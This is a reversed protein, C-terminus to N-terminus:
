SADEAKTAQRNSEKLELRIDARKTMVGVDGLPRVIFEQRYSSKSGGTRAAIVNDGVVRLVVYEVGSDEMYLFETQSRAEGYGFGAFLLPVVILFVAGILVPDFGLRTLLSHALSHPPIEGRKDYVNPLKNANSARGQLGDSGLKGMTKAGFFAAVPTVFTALGVGGPLLIKIAIMLGFFLIAFGLLRAVHTQGSPWYYLNLQLFTVFLGVYVFLVTGMNLVLDLSVKVFGAPYGFANAFGVEFAYSYAYLLAPLFPILVTAGASSSVKSVKDTTLIPWSTGQSSDDPRKKM